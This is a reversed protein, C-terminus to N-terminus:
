EVSEADNASVNNGNGVNTKRQKIKSQQHHVVFLHRVILNQSAHWIIRDREYDVRNHICTKNSLKNRCFDYTARDITTRNRGIRLAFGNVFMEVSSCVYLCLYLFFYIFHSSKGSVQIMLPCNTTSCVQFFQLRNMLSSNTLNAM